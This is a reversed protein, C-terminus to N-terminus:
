KPYSQRARANEGSFFIEGSAYFRDGIMSLRVRLHLRALAALTRTERDFRGDFGARRSVRPNRRPFFIIPSVDRMLIRAIEFCAITDLARDLAIGFSATNM